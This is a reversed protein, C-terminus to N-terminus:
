DGRRESEDLTQEYPREEPWPIGAKEAFMLAESTVLTPPEPQAHLHRCLSGGDEHMWGPGTAWNVARIAKGCHRCNM